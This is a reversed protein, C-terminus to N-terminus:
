LALISGEVMGSGTEVLPKGRDPSAKLTFRYCCCGLVAPLRRWLVRETECHSSLDGDNGAM